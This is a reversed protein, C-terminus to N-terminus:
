YPNLLYKELKRTSLVTNWLLRGRTMPGVGNLNPAVFSAKEKVSKFDVDFYMKGTDPHRRAGVGVVVAGEKIMEGTLRFSDKDFIEPPRGAAAVIIDASAIKVFAAKTNRHCCIPTANMDELIKRLPKGVLDSRGVIVADKGAIEVGYHDLLEIIGAATCPIIDNEFSYKSMLIGKNKPTLGDVDKEPALYEFPRDKDIFDPFPTQVLIGTIDDRVNLEHITNILEKEREESPVDSLRCVESYVGVDRCDAEKMSVYIQSMPEESVLIAALGPTIGLDKFHEVEERIKEKTAEFPARGSMIITM